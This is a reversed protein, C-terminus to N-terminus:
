GKDNVDSWGAREKLVGICTGHLNRCSCVRSEEESTHAHYPKSVTKLECSEHGDPLCVASNGFRAFGNSKLGSSGEEM